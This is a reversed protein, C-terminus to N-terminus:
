DRQRQSPRWGRTGDTTRCSSQIYVATSRRTTTTSGTAGFQGNVLVADRLALKERFGIVPSPGTGFVLLGHLARQGFDFSSSALATGVMDLLLLKAKAYIERPIEEMSLRSTFDALRGAITVVEAPKKM